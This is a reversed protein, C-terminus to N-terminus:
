PIKRTSNRPLQRNRADAPHDRAHVLWGYRVAINQVGDGIAADPDARGLLRDRARRRRHGSAVRRLRRPRLPLAGPDVRGGRALVRDRGLLHTPAGECARM